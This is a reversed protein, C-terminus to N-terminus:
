YAQAIVKRIMTDDDVARLILDAVDARAIKWGGPVHADVALRYDGTHPGDTMRAAQVITWDLGAAVIETEMNRVDTFPTKLIQGLLVQVIRRPLTDGKDPSHASNSVAVLRTTGTVLMAGMVSRAGDRCVNPQAKTSEGLAIIAADSGAVAGVIQEQDFINARVVCIHPDAIQLRAPDRVVATVHHGKALAQRVLHHGTRGTAGFVVLKM